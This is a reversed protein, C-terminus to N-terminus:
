KTMVRAVGPLIRAQLPGFEILEGDVTIYGDTTTPILRFARVPLLNVFPLDSHKGSELALLFQVVQVKTVTGPLIVLWIVADNLKSNPALFCDSAMHTVHGSYIMVFEGEITKWSSPVPEDLKPLTVHSQDQLDIPPINHTNTFPNKIKEASSM